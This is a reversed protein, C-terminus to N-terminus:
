VADQIVSTDGSGLEFVLPIFLSKAAEAPSAHDLYRSLSEPFHAREGRLFDLLKKTVVPDAAAASWLKLGCIGPGFPEGAEVTAEGRTLYRFQFSQQGVKQELCWSNFIAERV